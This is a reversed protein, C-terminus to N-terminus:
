ALVSHDFKKCKYMTIPNTPQSLIYKFGRVKVCFDVAPFLEETLNLKRVSEKLAGFSCYGYVGMEETITFADRARREVEDYPVYSMIANPFKMADYTKPKNYDV